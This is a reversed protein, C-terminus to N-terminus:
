RQQFDKFIKIVEKKRQEIQPGSLKDFVDLGDDRYLSINNKDLVNSLKNLALIGVNGCEEARYYCVM